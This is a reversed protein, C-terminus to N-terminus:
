DDDVFERRDTWRPPRIAEIEEQSMYEGTEAKTARNLARLEELREEDREDRSIYFIPVGIGMLIGLIAGVAGIQVDPDSWDIDLEALVPHFASVVESVTSVANAGCLRRPVVSIVRSSVLPCSPPQHTKVVAIPRAQQVVSIRVGEFRFPALKALMTATLRLKHQLLLSLSTHSSFLSLIHDHSTFLSSSFHTSTRGERPFEELAAATSAIPRRRGCLCEM